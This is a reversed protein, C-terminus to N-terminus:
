QEKILMPQVELFKYLPKDQPKLMQLDLPPKNWNNKLKIMLKKLLQFIMKVWYYLIKLKTKMRNLKIWDRKPKMWIKMLEIMIEKPMRLTLMLKLKTSDRKALLVKLRNYLKKQQLSHKKLMILNIKLM